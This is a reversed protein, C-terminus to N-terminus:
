LLLPMSSNSRFRAALSFAIWAEDQWSAIPVHSWFMLLGDGAYLDPGVQPQQLGRKYLSELLLSEGKTAQMLALSAAAIKRTPPAGDRGLSPTLARVHVGM